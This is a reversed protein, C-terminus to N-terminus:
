SESIHLFHLFDRNRQFGRLIKRLRPYAKIGVLIRVAPLSHAVAKHCRCLVPKQYRIRLMVSKKDVPFQRLLVYVIM